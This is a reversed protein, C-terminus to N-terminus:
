NSVLHVYISYYILFFIKVKFTLLKNLKNRSLIINWRWLFFFILKFNIKKKVSLKIKKYFFTTNVLRTYFFFLFISALLYLFFALNSFRRLGSFLFFKIFFISVPPFGSIFVLSIIIEPLSRLSRQFIPSINSRFFIIILFLTYLFIWVLALKAMKSSIFIIEFSFILSTFFLFRFISTEFFFFLSIFLTVFFRLLLNRKELSFNIVLTFLPIKQITILFFFRIPPINKLLDLAWFHLPPLGIKLILTFFVMQTRQTLFFFVLRFSLISQISFYKVIFEPTILNERRKKLLFLFLTSNIEIAIWLSLINSRQIIFILTATYCFFGIISIIYNLYCSLQPYAKELICSFNKSHNSIM